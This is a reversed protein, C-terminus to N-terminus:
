INNACFQWDDDTALFTGTDGYATVIANSAKSVVVYSTYWEGYENGGVEWEAVYLWNSPNSDSVKFIEYDLTKAICLETYDNFGHGSHIHIVAGCTLKINYKFTEIVYSSAPAPHEYLCDSWTIQGPSVASSTAGADAPPLMMMLLVTLGFGVVTLHNGVRRGTKLPKPM